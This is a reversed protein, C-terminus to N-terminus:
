VIESALKEYEINIEVMTKSNSTKITKDIRFLANNIDVIKKDVVKIDYTPEDVRTQESRDFYRSRSTGSNKLENLQDRRTKLAKQMALLENVSVSESM